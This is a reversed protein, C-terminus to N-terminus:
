GFQYASYLVNGTPAMTAHAEKGTSRTWSTKYFGDSILMASLNATRAGQLLNGLPILDRLRM